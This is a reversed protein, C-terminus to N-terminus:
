VMSSNHTIDNRLSPPAHKDLVTRLFDCFQNAKEFSSFESASTLEAILSPRDINAFNRDTKCLSSPKSVSVNFYSKICYHDSEHSDTVTSKKHIDDDPRVVVWDIIHGCKRTPKNIVQVLSYLNLTTLTHKTLSQLPNDFHINMDGVLCVLGSLNNIYDLDPLQETSICDTLNNRRNLPPRYLCFFHLIKHHLTISAQM